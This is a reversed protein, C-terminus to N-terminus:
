GDREYVVRGKELVDERIFPSEAKMREWELPTYVFVDVGVEPRASKLIEGARRHFPLETEAVVILDLDTWENVRHRTGAMSGFLIIREAGFEGAVVKILRDLESELLELRNDIEVSM